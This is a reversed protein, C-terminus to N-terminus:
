LIRKIFLDLIRRISRHLDSRFIWISQTKIGRIYIRRVLSQADKRTDPIRDPLGTVGPNKRIKWVHFTIGAYEHDGHVHEGKRLEMIEHLYWYQKLMVTFVAGLVIYAPEPGEDFQM